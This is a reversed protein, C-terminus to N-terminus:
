SHRQRWRKPRGVFVTTAGYRDTLQRDTPVGADGRAAAPRARLVPLPRATTGAADGDGSDTDSDANVDNDGAADIPFRPFRTGIL